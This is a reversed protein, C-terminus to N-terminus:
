KGAMRRAARRSAMEALVDDLDVMGMEGSLERRESERISEAFSDESRAAGESWGKRDATSRNPRGSQKPSIDTM